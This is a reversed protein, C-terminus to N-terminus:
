LGEMGRVTRKMAARLAALKAVRVALEAAIVAKVSRPLGLEMLASHATSVDQKAWKLQVQAEELVFSGCVDCDIGNKTIAM